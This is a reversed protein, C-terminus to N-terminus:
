GATFRGVVYVVAAVIVLGSVILVVTQMVTRGPTPVGPPREPVPQSGDEFPPDDHANAM